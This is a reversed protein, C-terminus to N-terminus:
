SHLSQFCPHLLSHGKMVKTHYAGIVDEASHKDVDKGEDAISEISCKTWGGEGDSQSWPTCSKFAPLHRAVQPHRDLQDESTQKLKIVAASRVNETM